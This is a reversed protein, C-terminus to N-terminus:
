HRSPKFVFDPYCKIFESDFSIMQRCEQDRAKIYILHDAFDGGLAYAELAERIRENNEFVVDEKKNLADLAEYISARNWKYGRKLVWILEVLVIDSIYIEEDINELFRVVQDLEHTQEKLLLRVLINTDLSIM